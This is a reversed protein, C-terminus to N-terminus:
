LGQALYGFIGLLRLCGYLRGLCGTGTSTHGATHRRREFQTSQPLLARGPVGARPTVPPPHFLSGRWVGLNYVYSCDRALVQRADLTNTHTLLDLVTGKIFFANVGSGDPVTNTGLGDVSYRGPAPSAHNHLTVRVFLPALQIRQVRLDRGIGGWAGWPGVTPLTEPPADWLANFNTAVTGGTVVASPFPPGLSSILILRPNIPPVVVGSANTVVSGNSSQQYPLSSSNNGIRLDADIWLIRTNKRPNVSVATTDM